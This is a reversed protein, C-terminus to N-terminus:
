EVVSIVVWVGQFKNLEDKANPPKHAARGQPIGCVAAIRPNDAFEHITGRHPHPWPSLLLNATL